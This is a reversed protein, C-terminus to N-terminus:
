SETFLKGFLTKGPHDFNFDGRYAAAKEDGSLERYFADQCIIGVLPKREDGL